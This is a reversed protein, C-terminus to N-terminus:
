KEVPNEGTELKLGARDEGEEGGGGGWFFSFRDSSTEATQSCSVSKSRNLEADFQMCARM